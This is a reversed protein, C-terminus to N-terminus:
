LYALLWMCLELLFCFCMQDSIYRNGSLAGWIEWGCCGGHGCRYHHLPLGCRDAGGPPAQTYPIYSSVYSPSRACLQCSRWLLSQHQPSWSYINRWSVPNLWLSSSCVKVILGWFLMAFIDRQLFRKFPFSIYYVVTSSCDLKNFSKIKLSLLKGNHSIILRSSLIVNYLSEGCQFEGDRPASLSDKWHLADM